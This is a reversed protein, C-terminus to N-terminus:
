KAYLVVEVRQNKRADAATNGKAIPDVSGRGIVQIKGAPIAALQALFAAVTEARNRSLVMESGAAEKRSCYGHVRLLYDTPYKNLTSAANALVSKAKEDLVADGKKFRVRVLNISLAKQGSYAGVDCQLESSESVTRTGLASVVTVRGFYVGGGQVSKGDAQLGDWLIEAPPIGKGQFEKIKGNESKEFVALRWSRIKMKGNVAIAFRVGEGQKAQPKFLKPEASLSVGFKAYRIQFTTSAKSRMGVDDSFVIKGTYTGAAAVSKRTPVWKVSEPLAGNGSKRFVRKGSPNLISFKWDSSGPIKPFRFVLPKENKKGALMRDGPSELSFSKAKTRIEVDQSAAALEMNHQDMVRLVARYKGDSLRKGNRDRGDWELNRPLRTGGKFYRVVEGSRSLTLIWRAVRLQDTVLRGVFITRDQRGDNNPSFPNVVVHLRLDQQQINFGGASRRGSFRGSFSAPMEPAVGLSANMQGAPGVPVPLQYTYDDEEDDEEVVTAAYVLETKKTAVPKEEKAVAFADELEAASELASFLDDKKKEPKGKEDALFKTRKKTRMSKKQEKDFGWSLSIVHYADHLVVPLQFAYDIRWDFFDTGVGATILGKEDFRQIYGLRGTLGVGGVLSFRNEIGVRLVQFSEFYRNSSNQNEFTLTFALESSPAYYGGARFLSPLMIDEQDFKLTTQADLLALGIQLSKGDPDDFVNYLLGLDLGGGEAPMGFAFITHRLYKGTVGLLLQGNRSLPFALSVLLSRDDVVSRLPFHIATFGIGTVLGTIVPISGSLYYQRQDGLDQNGFGIALEPWGVQVLAAPNSFVSESTGPIAVSSGAIGTSRASLRGSITNPDRTAAVPMAMILLILTIMLAKLLRM